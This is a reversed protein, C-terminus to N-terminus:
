RKEALFLHYLSQILFTLSVGVYYKYFAKFSAAASNGHKVIPKKLKAQKLLCFLCWYNFQKYTRKIRDNKFTKNKKGKFKIIKLFNFVIQLLFPFKFWDKKSGDPKRKKKM